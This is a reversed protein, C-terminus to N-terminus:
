VSLGKHEILEPCHGIGAAEIPLKQGVRISECSEPLQHAAGTQIFQRFEQVNELSLHAEDARSGEQHFVQRVIGRLLVTAMENRGTQSPPSLDISPIVGVPVLPKKKVKPIDVM